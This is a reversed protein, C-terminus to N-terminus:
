LLNESFDEVLSIAHELTKPMEQTYCLFSKGLFNNIIRLNNGESRFSFEKGFAHINM